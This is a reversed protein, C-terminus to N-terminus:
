EKVTVCNFKCIGSIEDKALENDPDIELAKDIYLEYKQENGKNKYIQALRVYADAFLPDAAIARELYELAKDVNGGAVRPALFYFSGLGFLVAPSNPQLREAKKLTPLVQMGNVVKSLPGGNSAIMGKAGAFIAYARAYNSLDVKNKGQKQVKTVLRIAEKFDSQM